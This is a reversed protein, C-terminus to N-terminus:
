LPSLSLKPLILHLFASVLHCHNAAAAALPVLMSEHRALRTAACCACTCAPPAGLPSALATPRPARSTSRPRRRPTGVARLHSPLPAASVPPVARSPARHRFAAAAAARVHYQLSLRRYAKKVDSMEAGEEIGLIKYPNFTFMEEGNMSTLKIALTIVAVWGVVFGVGRWGFVKSLM